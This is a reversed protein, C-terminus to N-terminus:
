VAALGRVDFKRFDEGMGIINDFRSFAEEGMTTTLVVAAMGARAAAEVGLPADEFVICGGPDVGCGEAARLFVDPHPKGRKVDRAGVVVDFESRVGLEDLIFGINENPASTAVALRIGAARAGQAFALFGNMLKRHPGYLERYILEKERNFRECEEDSLHTGMYSRVIEKGHRGATDRFFEDADVKIGHRALMTQWSRTHFAMNDVITGDMDFLFAMEKM